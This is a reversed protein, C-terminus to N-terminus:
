ATAVQIRQRCWGIVTTSQDTTLVLVVGGHSSHAPQLDVHVFLHHTKLLRPCNKFIWADSFSAYVVLTRDTRARATQNNLRTVGWSRIQISSAGLRTWGSANHILACVPTVARSTNTLLLLSKVHPLSHVVSDVATTLCGTVWIDLADIIEHVSTRTRWLRRNNVSGSLSDVISSRIYYLHLYVGRM